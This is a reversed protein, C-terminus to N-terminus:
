NFYKAGLIYSDHIRMVEEHEPLINGSGFTKWYSAVYDGKRGVKPSIRVGFKNRQASLEVYLKDCLLELMLPSAEVPTLKHSMLFAHVGGSPTLYTVWFEDPNTEVRKSLLEEVESTSSITYHHNDMEEGVPAPDWDLMVCNLLQMYKVGQNFKFNGWTFNESCKMLFSVFDGSTKSTTAAFHRSM